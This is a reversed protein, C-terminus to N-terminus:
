YVRKIDAKHTVEELRDVVKNKEVVVASLKNGLFAGTDIYVTNYKESHIIDRKISHGVVQLKGINLLADRTWLIGAESNINSQIVENMKSLDNQYDDPLLYKMSRSIGAHSIFCDELDYYLPKSFIFDLHENLKDFHDNYSLLTPEYGNHTWPRGIEHTPHLIFYYMMYDHNGPTFKIGESKVFEIVEYSFNGRDVLDGVSYIEIVPYKERIQVLLNKLTHFCGHIDGIVAIL